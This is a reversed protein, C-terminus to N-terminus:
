LHWSQDGTLRISVPDGASIGHHDTRVTVTQNMMKLEIESYPGMFSVQEATGTFTGPQPDTISFNDPRLFVKKGNARLGYQEPHVLNYKGFLGAVYENV